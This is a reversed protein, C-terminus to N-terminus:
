NEEENLPKHCLPCVKYTKLKDQIEGLRKTIGKKKEVAEKGAIMIKTLEDKYTILQEYNELKNQINYSPM